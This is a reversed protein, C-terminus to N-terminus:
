QVAHIPMPILVQVKRTKTNNNLVRFYIPTFKAQRCLSIFNEFFLSDYVFSNLYVIDPVVASAGPL